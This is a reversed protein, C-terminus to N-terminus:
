VGINLKEFTISLMVFCTVPLPLIFHIETYSTNGPTLTWLAFDM